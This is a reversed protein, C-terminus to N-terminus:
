CHNSPIEDYKIDVFGVYICGYWALAKRFTM